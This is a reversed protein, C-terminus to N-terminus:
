RMEDPVRDVSERTVLPIPSILYWLMAKSAPASINYALAEEKM